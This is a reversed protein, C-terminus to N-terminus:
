PGVRTTGLNPIGVLNRIRVPQARETLDAQVSLEVRVAAISRLQTETMLGSAPPFVEADDKTFYRFTPVSTPTAPTIKQAITRTRTAGSWFTAAVGYPKPPLNTFQWTPGTNPRAPWRKEVLNRTSTIEYRVVSPAPNANDANADTYSHLVVAERTALLFVPSNLAVNAVDVETGGRLTRTIQNMALSAIRTSDAAARDKTFQQSVVSVLSIVVGTLVGILLTTIMLEPLTVGADRGLAGRRRPALLARIRTM